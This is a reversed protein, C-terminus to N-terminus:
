GLPGLGLDEERVEMRMMEMTMSKKVRKMVTEMPMLNGKGKGHLTMVSGNAVKMQGLPLLYPEGSAVFALMLEKQGLPLKNLDRLWKKKCGNYNLAVTGMGVSHDMKM